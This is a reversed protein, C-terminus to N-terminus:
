FRCGLQGVPILQERLGQVTSWMSYNSESQKKGDVPAKVQPDQRQMTPNFVCNQNICAGLLLLIVLYRM